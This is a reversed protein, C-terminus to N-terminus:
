RFGGRPTTSKPVRQSPMSRFGSNDRQMEARPRSIDNSSNKRFGNGGRSNLSDNRDMIDLRRNLMKDRMAGENQYLKLVQQPPMIRQLKEAYKRRNDLLRQGVDFSKHLKNVAEEDSLSEPDFDSNFEAKIRRQEKEYDEYMKSFEEKDQDDIKLNSTVLDQRMKMLLQKRSEPPMQRITEKRQELSMKTWDLGIQAQSWAFAGFTLLFGIIIKRM